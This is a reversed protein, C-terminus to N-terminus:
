LNSNMFKEIHKIIRDFDRVDTEIINKTNRFWTMQRKAYRRTQKKVEEILKNRDIDTKLYNMIEKYGITRMFIDKAGKELGARVEDIWGMLFFKEVRTNIRNYLEDRPLTLYIYLIKGSYPATYLRRHEEISMGTNLIVELARTIRPRDNQSLKKASKEDLTQLKKYLEITQINDWCKRLFIDPGPGIFIGDILTKLYLGTGGTLIPIRNRKGLRKIIRLADIYFNYATYNTTFDVINILHHKIQKLEEVSPKGTGIDM